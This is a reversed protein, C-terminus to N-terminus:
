ISGVGKLEWGHPGDAELAAMTTGEVSTPPPAAYDPVVVPGQEAVVDVFAWQCGQRLEGHVILIVEIVHAQHVSFIFFTLCSPNCIKPKKKKQPKHHNKVGM